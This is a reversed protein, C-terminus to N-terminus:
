HQIVGLEQAKHYYFQAQKHNQEGGRGMEYLGALQMMAQPHNLQAAKLYYERALFENVPRGKGLEFILGLNYFACADGKQAALSYANFAAQYDDAVTEEIFGRAVAAAPYSSEVRAYWYKAEKFDPIQTLRGLQNMRGLLYAAEIQGQEAALRYWYAAKAYDVPGGLGLELMVALIMEARALGFNAFKEYIEKADQLHDGDNGQSLYYDALSMAAPISGEDKAHNLDMLFDDHDHQKLVALNFYANAFGEAAARELLTRANTEQQKEGSGEQLAYTGLIFDSVPNKGSWQYWDLALQHNPSVGIGRDYAFALVLAAIKDGLLAHSRATKFAEIQLAQNSDMANYFALPIEAADFGSAAAKQYLSHILDIRDRKTQANLEDAHSSQLIKALQYQAPPYENVASLAYFAEAQQLNPEVFWRGESTKLGLRKIEALVFQAYPEGRYATKTLIEIAEKLHGSDWELTALMYEARLDQSGAALRYYDRAKSWDPEVGLGFRYIQALNFQADYDGLASRHKLAEIQARKHDVKLQSWDLFGFQGLVTEDFIPAFEMPSVDVSRDQPELKADENVLFYDPIKIKEQVDNRNIQRQLVDYYDEISLDNPHILKFDPKIFESLVLSDMQPSPNSRNEELAEAQYWPSLIGTLRYISDVMWESKGNSLWLVADRELKDPSHDQNAAAFETWSRALDLDTAVGFQGKQYFEAMKEQAEKSGNQASRLIWLFGDHESFFPMDKNMYLSALALEAPAYGQDAAQQYWSKAALYDKEQLAINGLQFVAAIHGSARSSELFDKAKMLDQEVLYGKAHYTAMLTKAEPNDGLVAKTLWNLGLKHNAIQKTNLFDVALAMQAISNNLRAALIYYKKALDESKKVGLGYRYAAACYMISAEDNEEAAKKFWLLAQDPRHNVGLEYTALFKEAPLFGKSASKKFYEIALAESRPRGYGYLAMKGLYYDAKPDSKAELLLSPEANQYDGKLYPEIGSQAVCLGEHLFIGLLFGRALSQMIVLGIQNLSSAAHALNKM